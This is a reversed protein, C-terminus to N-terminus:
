VTDDALAAVCPLLQPLHTQQNTVKAGESGSRVKLEQVVSKHGNLNRLDVQIMHARAIRSEQM